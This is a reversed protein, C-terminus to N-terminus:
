FYLYFLSLLKYSTSILLLLCPIVMRKKKTRFKVTRQIQPLPSVPRGVFKRTIRLYWDMYESEDVGDDGQVIHHYRASWENLEPEMKGSLHIGSDVGRSKREWHQVDDPIGQLIGYQGLCRDPLHREAKDFCILMTKSRGLLLSSRVNEPILTCDINNYPLWEM